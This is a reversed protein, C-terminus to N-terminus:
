SIKTAKLDILLRTCCILHLNLYARKSDTRSLVSCEFYEISLVAVKAVFVSLILLDGPISTMAFIHWSSTRVREIKSLLCICVLILTSYGLSM